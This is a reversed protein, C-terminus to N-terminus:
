KKRINEEIKSTIYNIQNKTLFPNMPLSLVEKSIKESIKFDGKKYNLYKFCEQLHLPM